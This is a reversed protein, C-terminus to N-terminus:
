PSEQEASTGMVSVELNGAKVIQWARIITTSKDNGGVTLRNGLGMVKINM